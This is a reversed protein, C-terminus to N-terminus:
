QIFKFNKMAFFTVSAIAAIVYFGTVVSFPMSSEIKHYSKVQSYENNSESPVRSKAWDRVPESSSALLYQQVGSVADPEADGEFGLFDYANVCVVSVYVESNIQPIFATCYDMVTELACTGAPHNTIGMVTYGIHGLKQNLFNFAAQLDEDTVDTPKQIGDDNEETSKLYVEVCLISDRINLVDVKNEKFYALVKDVSSSLEAIGSSAKWVLYIAVHKSLSFRGDSTVNKEDIEESDSSHRKTIYILEAREEIESLLYYRESTYNPLTTRHM